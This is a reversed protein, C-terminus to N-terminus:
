DDRADDLTESVATWEPLLRTNKKEGWAVGSVSVTSFEFFASSRALSCHVVNM